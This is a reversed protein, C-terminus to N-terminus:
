LLIYYKVHLKVKVLTIGGLAAALPVLKEDIQPLSVFNTANGIVSLKEFLACIQVVYITWGETLALSLDM